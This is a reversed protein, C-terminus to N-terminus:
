RTEDTGINYFRREAGTSRLRPRREADAARHEYQAALRLMTERDCGNPMRAASARLGHATERMGEPSNKVRESARRFAADMTKSREAETALDQPTMFSGPIKSICSPQLSRLPVVIPPVIWSSM